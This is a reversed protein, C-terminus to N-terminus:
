GTGFTAIGLKKGGIAVLHTINQIEKRILLHNYPQFLPLNSYHFIPFNSHHFLPINMINVMSNGGAISSERRKVSKKM